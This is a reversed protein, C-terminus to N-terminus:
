ILLSCPFHFQLFLLSHFFTPLPHFLHRPFPFFLHFFLLIFLVTFSTFLCVPSILFSLCTFYPLASLHSLSPCVPSTLFPYYIFYISLMPFPISRCFFPFALSSLSPPVLTYTLHISVLSPLVTPFYPFPFFSSSPFSSPPISLILSLIVSLLPRHFLYFLHATSLIFVFIVFFTLGVHFLISPYFSFSYSFLSSSVVTSAM